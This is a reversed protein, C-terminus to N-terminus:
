NFSNKNWLKFILHVYYVEDGKRGKKDIFCLVNM